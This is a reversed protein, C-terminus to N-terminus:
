RARLQDHGMEQEVRHEAIAKQVSGRAVRVRSYATNVNIGEIAAFEPVSMGEVDVLLFAMRKDEDLRDLARRVVDAAQELEMRREPNPVGTPAAIALAPRRRETRERERKALRRAIGYLLARVSGDRHFENWRRHLLVFVEQAVDEVLAEPVGLRRIVRWVFVYHERYVSEIDLRPLL